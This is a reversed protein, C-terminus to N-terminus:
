SLYNLVDKLSNAIFLDEEYKQEGSRQLLIPIIGASRAGLVDSVYSDGIHVAEEPKCGAIELAKEFLAKQPKFARVLDASVIGTPHLGNLQMASNVCLESNNTILYIPLPCKDFFEKVDPFIPATAWYKTIMSHLENINDNLSYDSVLTNLAKFLVEESTLYADGYGYEKEYKKILSLWVPLMEKPSHLVSNQCIRKIVPEMDKGSEMVTTGTYDIFVTKLM